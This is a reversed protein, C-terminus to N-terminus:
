KIILPLFIGGDFDLYDPVSDGDSDGVGEESDPTGDGDSDTDRSNPTGDGDTDETGETADDINDGDSDTDEFNGIGDGDIDETGEDGDPIGDNDSDPDIYSPLDDNDPDNNGEDADLLGDNDSDDDQYDPTSDNDSNTGKDAGEEENTLGDNDVDYNLLLAVDDIYWGDKQNGDNDSILQFRFQFNADGLTQDLSYQNLSWDDSAGDFSAITAWGGGVPRIQFQGIDGPGTDIDHCSWFSIEPVPMGTLDIAKATLRNSSNASYDSSPSDTWSRSPTHAAETTVTWETSGTTWNITTDGEINDLIAYTDGDFQDYTFASSTGNAPEGESLLEDYSSGNWKLLKLGILKYPGNAGFANLTIGDFELTATNNGATWNAVIEEYALLTGNGSELWAEVKYQGDSVVTAGIEYNLTDFRSDTDSDTTAISNVSIINNNSLTQLQSGYLVGVEYPYSSLDRRHVPEIHEIVGGNEDHLIIEQLYYSDTRALIADFQLTVQGNNGSWQATAVKEGTVTSLIADVQYTGNKYIDLNTNITLQDIYGDNNTDQAQHQYQGSLGATAGTFESFHYASTVYNPVEQSVLGNDTHPLPNAETTIRFWDVVYPGIAEKLGVMKGSFPLSITHTGPELYLIKTAQDIANVQGGMRTTEDLDNLRAEIYYEDAVEVQIEAEIYLQDYQGDSDLDLVYDTTIQNLYAPGSPTNTQVNEEDLSLNGLTGISGGECVDNSCDSITTPEEAGPWYDKIPTEVWNWRSIVSTVGVQGAPFHPYINSSEIRDTRYDEVELGAYKVNIQDMQFDPGVVLILDNTDKYVANGYQARTRLRHDSHTPFYARQVMWEGDVWVETATDYHRSKWDVAIPRAVFGAAKLFSTALSANGNCDADIIGNPNKLNEINSHDPSLHNGETSIVDYDENTLSARSSNPFSLANFDLISDTYDFLSLIAEERDTHGQMGRMFYNEVFYQENYDTDWGIGWGYVPHDDDEFDPDDIYDYSTDWYVTHIDRDENLDDNYGLIDIHQQTLDHLSDPSPDDFPTELEFLVYLTLIEVWGAGDSAVLQYTGTTADAPIQVTWGNGCVHNIPALDTLDINPDDGNPKYGFVSYDDLENIELTAGPPGGIYLTQGRRVVIDHQYNNGQVSFGKTNPLSSHVISRNAHVAGEQNWPYFKRTQYEDRYVVYLGPSKDDNPDTGYLQEEGDSLGDDDSDPDNPDTTYPGEGESNYWGAEEVTTSLGDFDPDPLTQSQVAARSLSQHQHLYTPQGDYAFASIPTILLSAVWLFLIVIHFLKRHNGFM